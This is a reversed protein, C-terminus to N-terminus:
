LLAFRSPVIAFSHTTSASVQTCDYKVWQRETVQSEVCIKLGLFSVLLIPRQLHKRESALSDISKVVNIVIQGVKNLLLVSAFTSQQFFPSILTSNRGRLEMEM